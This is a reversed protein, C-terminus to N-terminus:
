HIIPSSWLDASATCGGRHPGAALRPFFRVYGGEPTKAVVGRRLLAALIAECDAASRGFRSSAQAADITLAHDDLFANQVRTLADDISDGSAMVMEPHSPSRRPTM